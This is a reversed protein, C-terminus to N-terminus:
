GVTRHVLFTAMLVLLVIIGVTTYLGLRTVGHWAAKHKELLAEHDKHPTYPHIDM